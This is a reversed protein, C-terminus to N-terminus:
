YWTSRNAAEWVCVSRPGDESPYMSHDSPCMSHLTMSTPIKELAAGVAAGFGEPDIITHVVIVHM